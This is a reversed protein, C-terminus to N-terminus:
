ALDPGPVIMTPHVTHGPGALGTRWLRSVGVLAAVGFVVFPLEIFAAAALGGVVGALAEAGVQLSQNNGM